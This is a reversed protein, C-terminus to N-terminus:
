ESNPAGCYALIAQSFSLQEVPANSVYLRWGLTRSQEQIAAPDRCVHLQYRIKEEVRAPRDKYKRVQRTSVQREYTPLLLGTVRHHQLIAAAAAQLPILQDYQRKGRGPAPTLAM